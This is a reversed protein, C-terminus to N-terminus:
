FWRTRKSPLVSSKLPRVRFPALYSILRSLALAL